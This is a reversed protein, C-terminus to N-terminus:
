KKFKMPTCACLAEGFYGFILPVVFWILPRIEGMIYISGMSMFVIPIFMLPYVTRLTEFLRSNKRRAAVELRRRSEYRKVHKFNYLGHLLVCLPLILTQNEIKTLWIIYM